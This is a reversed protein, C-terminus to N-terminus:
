IRAGCRPISRSSRDSQQRGARLALVRNQHVIREFGSSLHIGSACLTLQGRHGVVVREDGAGDGTEVLVGALGAAREVLARAGRQHRLQAAHLRRQAFRLDRALPQARPPSGCPRPRLPACPACRHRARAPPAAARGVAGCRAAAARAAAAAASAARARGARRRAGRRRLRAVGLRRRALRRRRSGAVVLLGLLRGGGDGRTRGRGSTRRAGRAAPQGVVASLPKRSTTPSTSSRPAAVALAARAPARSRRRADGAAAAARRRASARRNSGRSSGRRIRM